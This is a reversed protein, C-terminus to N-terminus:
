GLEKLAATMADNIERFRDPDGGTDPHHIKALARYAAKCFDLTATPHVGLVEWWMPPAPLAAFQMMQGVTAVGYGANIRNNKLYEAIATINQPLERFTDCPLIYSRSGIKFQVVVGPDANPVGNNWRRQPNGRKSLVFQASVRIDQADIRQLELELRDLAPKVEIREGGASFTALRRSTARATGIPWVPGLVLIM